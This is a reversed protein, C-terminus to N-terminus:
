HTDEKLTSRAMDELEAVAVMYYAYARALDLRTRELDDKRDFLKNASTTNNELQAELMKVQEELMRVRESRTEIRSANVRAERAANSVERMHRLRTAAILAELRRQRAKCAREEQSLTGRDYITWNMQVGAWTTVRPVNEYGGNRYEDVYDINTSAVADIQPKNRSGLEKMFAEERELEAELAQTDGMDAVAAENCIRKLLEDPLPSIEPIEETPIELDMIGSVERILELYYQAGSQADIFSEERSKAFIRAEYVENKAVQGKALMKEMGEQKQSAYSMSEKALSAAINAIQYELYYRRLRQRVDMYRNEKYGKAQEMRARAQAKKSDIEDWHYLPVGVGVTAYPGIDFTNVNSSQSNIRTEYLGQIRAYSTVRPRYARNAGVVGAKSEEVRMSEAVVDPNNQDLNELLRALTPFSDEPLVSQAASKSSLGASALTLTVILSFKLLPRM